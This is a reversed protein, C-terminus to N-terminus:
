TVVMTSVILDSALYDNGAVQRVVAGRVAVLAWGALARVVALAALVLTDLAAQSAGADAKGALLTVRFQAPM